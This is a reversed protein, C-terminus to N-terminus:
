FVEVGPAADLEEDFGQCFVSLATGDELRRPVEPELGVPDEFGVAYGHLQSVGELGPGDLFGADLGVPECRPDQSVQEPCVEDGLAVGRSPLHPLPPVEEAVHRQQDFCPCPDPVLHVAEEVLVVEAAACSPSDECLLLM